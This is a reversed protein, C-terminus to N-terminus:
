TSYAHLQITCHRHKSHAQPITMCPQCHVHASDLKIADVLDFHHGHKVRVPLSCCGRLRLNVIFLLDDSSPTSWAHRNNGTFYCSLSQDNLANRDGTVGWSEHSYIYVCYSQIPM